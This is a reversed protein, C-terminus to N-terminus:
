LRLLFLAEFFHHLFFATSPCWSVAVITSQLVICLYQLSHCSRLRIPQTASLHMSFANLDETRRLLAQLLNWDQCM